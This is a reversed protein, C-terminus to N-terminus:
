CFVIKKKLFDIRVVSGNPIIIQPDTHGFNMNFIVPINIKYDSLVKKVAKKQNLMYLDRGGIAEKGCFQAKPYAVLIAKFHLLLDLEALTAFFRYVFEESPMEESTEAFLITDKVDDFNPLYKRVSLHLDLVELCGGWLQGEIVGDIVNHWEWGESKYMLRKRNLNEKDAWDLDLDSWESSAQIEGISPAFLAKFISQTTYDHMGGGMAFQTMVAGGYYSIIGCNWLFLHLNTNDSYGLFIKPNSKILDRDLYPLIKIQDNGGITSFVAKIEPDSFAQNIDEARAEPHNALFESNRKATTYEVPILGFVDQIRRLGQEYVWPFLHPLGASPSVIAVKDGIKLREPQKFEM